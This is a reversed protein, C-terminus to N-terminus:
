VSGSSALGQSARTRERLWMPILAVAALAALVLFITFLADWGYRRSVWATLAGQLVAGVSGLGNIFGAATSAAETGGLDQAAAASIISDPGFLCAGVLALALFNPWAGLHGVKVYIGFAFALAICGGIGAGARKGRLLGDSLFGVTVAGVTGGLEFSLSQWSAHEQGYHLARELYFPLWFLLSYRILKLCFYGLGLSWLAPMMLLERQVAQRKAKPPAEREPLLLLVAAGVAAVLLAPAWFASRWGGARVLWGALGGAIVGGVQYCTSWLGMVRGREAPELWPTLAKVNGPWGSAQFFGNLAFPIAIFWFGTAGACAACLTAAAIMGVGVLKRSGLWDGLFGMTFQGIAYAALYGTDIYGLADTGLHFVDQLATKSVSVNKRCLYFSAYSLWTLLLVRTRPSLKM